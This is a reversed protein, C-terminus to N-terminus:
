VQSGVRSRGPQGSKAGGVSAIEKFATSRAARNAPDLLPDLHHFQQERATFAADHPMIAVLGALQDGDAIFAIDVVVAGSNGAPELLTRQRIDGVVARQPLPVRVQPDRPCCRDHAQRSQELRRRAGLCLM